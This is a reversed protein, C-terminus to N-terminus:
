LGVRQWGRDATAFAGHRMEGALWVGGWWFYGGEENAARLRGTVTMQRGVAQLPAAHGTGDLDGPLARM